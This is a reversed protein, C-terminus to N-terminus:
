RSPATARPRDQTRAGGLRRSLRGATRVVRAGMTEWTQPRRSERRFSVTIAATPLGTHDFVPAAICVIDDTVSGVELSWGRRRDEALLLRLQSLSQPGQGTRNVFSGRPAFVATVQPSPLHTLIARGCATLHAPLRVGVATVLTTPQEPQEKLLYLVENGHLIGLQVTEDLERVLQVLLPRALHELPQHRLYASGLEFVGVALAYARREPIHVVLGEDCLAGLLQYASSRPLGLSRALGSAPVPDPSSALARLIGVVHRVSRM